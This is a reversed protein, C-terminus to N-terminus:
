YGGPYTTTPTTTTTSTTGSPAHKVANGSSNVVYWISQYGQGNVQGAKSDGTYTYLPHGRYTVQRKGNRRKTTGLLKAKVGTAASVKGKAMLPPWFGACGTYCNSKNRADPTYLYLTKGSSTALVKGLKTKHLTIRTGSASHKVAAVGSVSQHSAAASGAAVLAVTAGVALVGRKLM